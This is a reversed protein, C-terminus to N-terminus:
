GQIEVESVLRRVNCWLGAVEMVDHANSCLEVVVMEAAAVDRASSCPEVEAAAEASKAEEMQHATADGAEEEARLNHFARTVAVAVAVETAVMRAHDDLEIVMAAVLGGHDVSDLGVELIVRANAGGWEKRTEAAAM